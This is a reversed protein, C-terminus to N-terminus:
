PTGAASIAGWLPGWYVGLALTPIALLFLVVYHIPEVRIEGAGERAPLFFMQRLIRAYYY